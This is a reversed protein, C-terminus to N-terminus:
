NNSNIMWIIGNCNNQEIESLNLERTSRITTMVRILVPLNSPNSKLTLINSSSVILM